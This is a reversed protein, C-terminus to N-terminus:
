AIQGEYWSTLGVGTVKYYWGPPVLFQAAFDQANSSTRVTVGTTTGMDVILSNNSASVSVFRPTSGTNQYVTGFARSGSVSAITLGPPGSLAGLDVPSNPFTVARNATLATTDFTLDKGAANRFKLSATSFIANSIERAAAFISSILGAFTGKKQATGSVYAIEDTDAFTNDSAGASLLAARTGIATDVQSKTYTNDGDAKSVLVEALGTIESILHGHTGLAALASSPVWGQSSKVLIYNITAGDAGSVDTLDDLKFTQNAPMKGALASALGIVDGIAHTHITAAKSNVSVLLMFLITDLLDLTEQLKLFEEDVDRSPDPKELNFNATQAM